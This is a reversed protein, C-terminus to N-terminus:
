RSLTREVAAYIADFCGNTTTRAELEREIPVLGSPFVQICAMRWYLTVAVSATYGDIHPPLACVQKLGGSLMDECLRAHQVLRRANVQTLVRTNKPIHDLNVLREKILRRSEARSFQDDPHAWASAVWVVPENTELCGLSFALRPYHHYRIRSTLAVEAAIAHEAQGTAAEMVTLDEYKKNM